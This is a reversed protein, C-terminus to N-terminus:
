FSRTWLLSLWASSDNGETTGNFRLNFTGVSTIARIGVSGLMWTDNSDAGPMKVDFNSGGFTQGSVPSDGESLQQCLGVEATVATSQNIPYLMNVGARGDLSHDAHSQYTFPDVGGAESYGDVQANIFSLDIYPSFECRALVISKEWDVRARFAWGDVNTEGSSSGNALGSGYARLIEVDSQHYYGTLTMWANAALREIPAILEGLLYEGRIDQNGGMSSDHDSWSKGLAAGLQIGSSGLARAVGVEAVGQGGDRGSHQDTGWDGGSWLAYGEGPSLRFDLPHGHLGHLVMSGNSMAVRSSPVQDLVSLEYLAALNLRSQKQINYDSLTRGDQLKKGKFVLEQQDPPIGEKDQIKAKVAEINDSQEVDLTITKGSLTRVFIQIARADPASAIGLIAPLLFILQGPLSRRTM